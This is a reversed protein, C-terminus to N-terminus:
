KDKENDKYKMELFTPMLDSTKAKIEGARTYWCIM